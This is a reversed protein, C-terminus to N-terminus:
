RISVEIETVLPRLLDLWRPEGLRAAGVAGAIADPAWLMPEEVPLAIEVRLARSILKRNAM